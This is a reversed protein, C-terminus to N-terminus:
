KWPIGVIIEKINAFLDRKLSLRALLYFLFPSKTNWKMPSADERVVSDNRKETKNEHLYTARTGKSLISIYLSIWKKLHIYM